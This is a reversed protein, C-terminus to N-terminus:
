LQSCSGIIPLQAKVDAKYGFSMPPFNYNVIRAYLFFLPFLTGTVYFLIPVANGHVIGTQNSCQKYSLYDTIIPFQLFIVFFAVFIFDSNYQTEQRAQAVPPAGLKYFSSACISINQPLDLYAPTRQVM